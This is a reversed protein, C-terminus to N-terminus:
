VKTHIHTHKKKCIAVGCIVDLEVPFSALRSYRPHRADFQRLEGNDVVLQHGSVDHKGCTRTTSDHM